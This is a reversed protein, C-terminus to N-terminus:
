LPRTMHVHRIGAEDFEAGQRAFGHCEYFPAAGVQAHLHVSAHGRDRAAALLSELLRAGVGRGRWPALVALRGIRGDPLLRGTGVPAGREDTALAHVCAADRGDWDLMRPVHQEAGFVADRVLRICGEAAGFSTLTVDM